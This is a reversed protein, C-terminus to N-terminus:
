DHRGVTALSEEHRGLDSVKRVTSTNTSSKRIWNKFEQYLSNSNLLKSENIFEIFVPLYCSRFFTTSYPAGNTFAGNQAYKTYSQAHKNYIILIM